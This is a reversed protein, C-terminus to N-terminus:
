YMSDWKCTGGGLKWMVMGCISLVTLTYGSIKDPRPFFRPVVNTLTVKVKYKTVRFYAIINCYNIFISHSSLTPKKAKYDNNQDNTKERYSQKLASQSTPIDSNWFSYWQSQSSRTESFLVCFYRELWKLRHHGITKPLKHPISALRPVLIQHSKQTCSSNFNDYGPPM